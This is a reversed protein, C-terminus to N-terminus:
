LCPEQNHAAVTQSPPSIIRGDLPSTYGAQIADLERDAPESVEGVYGFGGHDLGSWRGFRHLFEQQIVHARRQQAQGDLMLHSNQGEAM